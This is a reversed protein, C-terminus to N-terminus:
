GRGQSRVLAAGRHAWLGEARALEAAVSSLDAAGQPTIRQHTLVKLFNGVWLGGTYRAAGATPLTHNTGSAYDGFVEASHDGIFLSGYNRLSGIWRDPDEVLLELHEPAKRNALEVAEEMSDALVVEGNDEWSRRATKGTPLDKLLEEVKLMTKEALEQSTAVLVSKADPDHEAQALLDWAIYEPKGTQAIVMVESPGAVFDIGVKGFCQRKAETVYKNGPGVILDVPRITETGFAMAAVGHAGGAAYVERVGSAWLAGLVARDPLAEGHRVPTCACIRKVGAVAAPVALMLVTSVLPYAGGPVYCGCSDVPVVRHGLFVGPCIETERLESLCRMQLEAFRAINDKAKLVADKLGLDLKLFAEELVEEPVKLHKAESKDYLRSAEMVARDGHRQVEEIIRAVQDRVGYMDGAEQGSRDRAPTKLHRM